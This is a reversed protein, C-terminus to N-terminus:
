RGLRQKRLFIVEDATSASKGNHTKKFDERFKGLADGTSMPTTPVPSTAASRPEDKSLNKQADMKTRLAANGAVIKSGAKTIIQRALPMLKSNVEQKFLTTRDQKVQKTQAERAFHERRAKYYSDGELSQMVAVYIERKANGKEYESMGEAKALIRDISTDLFTKCTGALEKEQQQRAQLTTEKQQRLLDQSRRDLDEKQKRLEEPLDKLAASDPSSEDELLLKLAAVREPDETQEFFKLKSELSIKDVAKLFKEFSGDTLPLGSAKDVIVEGTDDNRVYSEEALHALFAHIADPEQGIAMYAGTFGDLKLAQEKAFVAAQKTPFEKIIDLASTAKRSLQYMKDKLGAKELEADLAPNDALAKALEQPTIFGVEESTIDDEPLLDADAGAEAAKKDAAEKDAAAKKEEETQPKKEADIKAQADAEAKIQEPTKEVPAAAPAAPLKGEKDLRRHEASMKMKRAIFQQDTEGKV